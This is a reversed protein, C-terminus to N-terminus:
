PQLVYTGVAQGTFAQGALKVTNSGLAGDACRHGTAVGQVYLEFKASKGDASIMARGEQAFGLYTATIDFCRGDPAVHEILVASTTFQLTTTKTTRDCTGVSFKTPAGNLTGFDTTIALAPGENLKITVKHLCQTAADLNMNEDAGQPHTPINSGEMVMTKGNFFAKVAAVTNYPNSATADRATGDRATGDRVAADRVAADRRSADVVRADRAPADDDSCGSLLWASAVMWGLAGRVVGPMWTTRM